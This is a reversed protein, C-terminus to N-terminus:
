LEYVMRYHYLQILCHVHLSPRTSPISDDITSFVMVWFHTIYGSILSLFLLTSINNNECTLLSSYIKHIREINHKEKM